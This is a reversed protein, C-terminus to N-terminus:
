PSGVAPSRGRSADRTSCLTSGVAFDKAGRSPWRRARTAICPWRTRRTSSCSPTIAGGRAPPSSGITAPSSATPDSVGRWGGRPLTSGTCRALWVRRSSQRGTPPTSPPPSSSSRCGSARTLACCCVFLGWTMPVATERSLYVRVARRSPSRLAAARAEDLTERWGDDADVRRARRVVGRLRMLAVISPLLVLVVGAAYVALLLNVITLGGIAVPAGAGIGVSDAGVRVRGLAVLPAALTPPMVWAVWHLPLARGIFVLLLAAIASRWVLVRAEASSRRLALAVGAAAVIPVTALLSVSYVGTVAQASDAQALVGAAVIM